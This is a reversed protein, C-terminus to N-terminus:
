VSLVDIGLKQLVSDFAYVSSIFTYPSTHIVGYDPELSPLAHSSFGSSLQQQQQNNFVNALIPKRVNQKMKEKRAVLKKTERVMYIADTTTMFDYIIKRKVSCHSFIWILTCLTNFIECDKDCWRLLMQAITVLGGEQFTNATTSNYRALNLIIRSCYMILCKDIESRIAQAMIGYCFSSIFNAREILIYPVTRSIRDLCKLVQLAEAACFRGRLIKVANNIKSQITNSANSSQNLSSAINHRIKLLKTNCFRKRIRYGRWFRQILLAAKNQRRLEKMKPTMLSHFHQRALLGRVHAQFKVINNRLLMYIQREKRKQIVARYKQQVRIVTSRLLLFQQRQKVMQQRARFKRQIRIVLSRLLQYQAQMKLMECRARFRRQFCIAANRLKEYNRRDSRMQLTTKIKRQVLIIKQIIMVFYERQQRAAITARWKKQITIIARREYQYTAREARMQFISRIWQQIKITAERQQMYEFRQRKGLMYNRYYNQIYVIKARKNQFTVKERKMIQNARFRRQIQVILDYEHLYKQRCRQCLKNARFRKQMIIILERQRKFTNLSERMLLTARFRRQMLVVTEKLRLYQERQVIMERYAKYGRQIVVAAQKVRQFHMRECKMTLFGRVHHQLCLIATKTDIYKAKQYRMAKNARFYRQITLIAHKKIEYNRRDHHMLLKNRYNRQVFIVAKKLERYQDSAIRMQQKARYKQQVVITYYQLMLFEVRMKRALLTARWKQQIHIVSQRINLYKTRQKRMVLLSRYKVQIFIIASRTRQYMLRQKRMLQKARIRQQLTKVIEQLYQYSSRIAKMHQHARFKRQIVLVASMIRLFQKRAKFCRWFSQIIIVMNEKKKQWQHKLQAAEACIFRATSRLRWLRQICVVNKRLQLYDKRCKNTLKSTRYWHQIALISFMTANYKKRALYCRIYKQLTIAATTREIRYINSYVRTIYGRFASQIIVAAKDRKLEQKRRIRRNITVKLWSNRWWKQLVRAAAHFKPSRFKYIIQWLLSLTKERHGNVIDKATINGKLQFDAESLSKLAINVNFIKKAVDRLLNLIAQSLAANINYSLDPYIDRWSTNIVDNISDSLEKNSDLINEFHVFVDQPQFDCTVDKVKVFVKGQKKELNVHAILKTTVNKLHIDAHGKAKLTLILVKGNAEYDTDIKLLPVEFHVIVNKFDPDFGTVNFVKAKEFGNIFFNTFNLSLNVASSQGNPKALELKTVMLRSLDPLGFSPSGKPYLRLVENISSAICVNDSVKCKPVNSPLVGCLIECIDSLVLFGLLYYSIKLMKNMLGMLDKNSHLHVKEGYVVELGLRLWLPNFCLLLELIARQTIVNLHLNRDNRIRLGNKQVYAVVKSCPLRLDESLFLEVAARRLSELRFKTLYNMSQEEKTPALILNKNRVESFLKGVDIKTNSDADLDAPMTVLANLWKKFDCEHKGISAEDLHTTATFFPDCTTTAAFPDPNIFSQLYLENDYLKARPEAKLKSPTVPKQILSLTQTLKIRKPNIRSWTKKRANASANIPTLNRLRQRKLPSVYDSNSKMPKNIGKNNNFSVISDLRTCDSFSLENLSRKTGPHSVLSFENINPAIPSANLLERHIDEKRAISKQITDLCTISGKRATRSKFYLNQEFECITEMEMENLNPLSGQKLLNRQLSNCQLDMMSESFKRLPTEVLKIDQMLASINPLNELNLLNVNQTPTTPVILNMDEQQILALSRVGPKLVIPTKDLLEQPEESTVNVYDIFSEFSGHPRVVFTRNAPSQEKSSIDEGESLETALCRPNLIREVELKEQDNVSRQYSIPNLILALNNPKNDEFESFSGVVPSFKLEDITSLFDISDELQNVNEKFDNPQTVVICPLRNKPPTVCLKNNEVLPFTNLQKTTRYQETINKRGGLSSNKWRLQTELCLKESSETVALRKEQLHKQQAILRNNKAGNTPSKLRLTKVHSTFAASINPYKYVSKTLKVSKSKLIIFVDKRFNRNDTFQLTERCCIDMVPNWILEMTIENRAPVINELWELSMNLGSDISKTVTVEIEDNSPNIIRLIRRASKSIPVDEFLVVSKGSFPSMVVGTPQRSEELRKSKKQKPPTIKIEFASM